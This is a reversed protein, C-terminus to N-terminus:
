RIRRRPSLLQNAGMAHLAATIVIGRLLAHRREADVVNVEVLVHICRRVVPEVVRTVASSLRATM